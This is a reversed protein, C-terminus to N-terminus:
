AEVPLELDWVKVIVTVAAFLAPGPEPVFVSATLSRGGVTVTFGGVGFGTLVPTVAITLKVAVSGSPETAERDTSQPSPVPASLRGSVAVDSVWM